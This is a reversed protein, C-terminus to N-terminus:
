RMITGVFKFRKKSCISRIGLNRKIIYMVKRVRKKILELLIRLETIMM